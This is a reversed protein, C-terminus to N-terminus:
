GSERRVITAVSAVIVLAGAVITLTIEESLIVAGLCIAIVPNVYAYTAVKSVPAHQLLWVYATFAVLSGVLVLYAFAILSDGSVNALDVDGAEGIALGAPICLAGGLLMQTSTSLFPNRPLDVKSALFTGTAWSLSAAVLLLFGAIGGREGEAGGPLLLLAVGAFGVLVGALTGHAISEGTAGRMVVVWLPVAAIILSALGSPVDKEAVMVLGNGGLVLAGGILAAPLIHAREVRVAGRGKRALLVVYIVAGALMFRVGSTLLPPLTEVTVRIALYTSGWVIYVIWLCTWVLWGPGPETRAPAPAPAAPAQAAAEPARSLRGLISDASPRGPQAFTWFV